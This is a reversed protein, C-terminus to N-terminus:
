PRGALDRIFMDIEQRTQGTLQQLRGIFEEEQGEVYRLDNDTLHAYKQKLRGKLIHWKGKLIETTPSETWVAPTTKM